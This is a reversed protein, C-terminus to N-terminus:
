YCHAWSYNSDNDSSESVKYGNVYISCYVAGGNTDNISTSIYESTSGTFITRTICTIGRESAGDLWTNAWSVTNGYENQFSLNVTAGTSSCFQQDVKSYSPATVASAEGAYAGGVFALAAAVTLVSATKTKRNM